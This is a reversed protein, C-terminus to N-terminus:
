VHTGQPGTANADRLLPVAGKRGMVHVSRTVVPCMALPFTLTCSFLSFVVLRMNM